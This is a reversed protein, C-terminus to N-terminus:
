KNGRLKSIQNNLSNYGRINMKKRGINTRQNNALKEFANFTYHKKRGEQTQEKIM